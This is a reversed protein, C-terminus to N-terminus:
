GLLWLVATSLTVLLSLVLIRGASRSHSARLGFGFRESKEDRFNQEIQMRRGYLKMVERPKFEATSSFILWPEKAAA